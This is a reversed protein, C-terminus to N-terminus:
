NQQPGFQAYQEMIKTTSSLMTDMKQARMVLTEDFSNTAMARFQVALIGLRNTLANYLESRLPEPQEPGYYGFTTFAMRGRRFAEDANANNAPSNTFKDFARGFDRQFFSLATRDATTVRNMVTSKGTNVVSRNAFFEMTEKAMQQDNQDIAVELEHAAETWYKYRGQDASPGLEMPDQKQSQNIQLELMLKRDLAERVYGTVSRSDNKYQHITDMLQSDLRALQLENNESVAWSIAVAAGIGGLVSALCREIFKTRKFPLLGFM